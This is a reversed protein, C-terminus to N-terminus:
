RFVFFNLWVNILGLFFCGFFLPIMYVTYDSFLDRRTDIFVKLIQETKTTKQKNSSLKQNRVIFNFVLNDFPHQRHKSRQGLKIWSTTPQKKISSFNQFLSFLLLIWFCCCRFVIILLFFLCFLIFYFPLSEIVVFLYFFLNIHRASYKNM